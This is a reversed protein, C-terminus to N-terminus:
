SCDALAGLRPGAGDALRGIVAAKTDGAAHLGRVLAGSREPAVAFLLGGATQPDFLLLTRPDEESAGFGGTLGPTRNQPHATSRLGRALLELAGDLAPLAALDLEARLGSADVLEGLHGALGFGSIDTCARVGLARAAQLAPANDRLMAAQASRMWAGRALGRMDAALLVGTGLAKSLVLSDGACGGTARLLAGDEALDGTVCLGVFLEPGTTSHGGVLTVGLPDLAARIGALVQYLTEASREPALDPVTVLALAHRPRGGKALVDSAANVAAVRGVLWPDDTFARFADVSALLVDGKPLALAAADDPEALGLLVSPDELPPGLRALANALPSPGVKAACGGCEMPEDAGPMEDPSPFGAAPRGSADLAQFRQMFRRDIWDKLRWTAAGGFALGWKGGLARRDGVNLLALFDRQPTYRQLPAGRLAARLNGDLVPGQRVAYVGARPVWPHDDSRACDGAAFLAAHGAVQLTSEVRIFGAEDLPLPSERVFAHAEAGTAWLVLDCPVPEPAAGGDIAELLLADERVAAVRAGTRLAVGREVLERRARAALRPRERALAMGAGDVLEVAAAVGQARLRSEVCLALEVGAAGSGVVAVRLADGEARPALRALREDIARVFRGIPRTPVAHEAVGPLGVGAVTSGVDVSAVDYRIPPRGALEIRRAVPDIGTAAALLCRAGARRALPWADIVLQERTYDGAVFGPVMGSYVAEHRDIVLTLRAGVVPRMMWRRLVQVHAHGAGVLVLDRPDEPRSGNVRGV